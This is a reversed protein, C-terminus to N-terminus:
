GRACTTVLAPEGSRSIGEVVSAVLYDWPFGERVFSWHAYTIVAVVVYVGIYVPGDSGTGLLGSTIPFWKQNMLRTPFYLWQPKRVLLSLPMVAQQQSSNATIGQEIKVALKIWQSVTIAPCWQRSAIYAPLSTEVIYFDGEGEGLGLVCYLPAINARHCGNKTV